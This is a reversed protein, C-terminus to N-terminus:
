ELWDRKEIQGCARCFEVLVGVVFGLLVLGVVGIIWLTLQAM